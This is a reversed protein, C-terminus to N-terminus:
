GVQVLRRGLRTEAAVVQLCEGATPALPKECLVPKGAALCALTLELHTSDPSAILVADVAPDGILAPAQAFIRPGGTQAAVSAARDPDADSLAVLTAGQISRALTRAHDGGMVGAGIIGIGLSM